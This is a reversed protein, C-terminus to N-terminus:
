QGRNASPLISLANTDIIAKLTKGKVDPIVKAYVKGGRKLLGFMPVKGTAGRGRKGKRHGGFYSEDAEIEGFVPSTDERQQAVIERLRHFYFAATTKNVGVLSAAAAV